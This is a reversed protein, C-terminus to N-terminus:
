CNIILQQYFFLIIYILLSKIRKFMYFPQDKFIFIIMKEQLNIVNFEIFMINLILTNAKDHM